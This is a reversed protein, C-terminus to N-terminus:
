EAVAVTTAQYLANAHVAPDSPELRVQTGELVTRAPVLGSPPNDVAKGNLPREFAQENDDHM